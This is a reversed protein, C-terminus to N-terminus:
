NTLKSTLVGNIMTSIHPSLHYRQGGSILSDLGLNRRPWQGFTGAVMGKIISITSCGKYHQDDNNAGQVM